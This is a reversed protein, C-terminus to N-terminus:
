QDRCMSRIFAAHYNVAAAANSTVDSAPPWVTCHITTIHMIQVSMLKLGHTIMHFSVRSGVGRGEWKGEWKGKGGM